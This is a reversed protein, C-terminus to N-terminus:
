QRLSLLKLKLKVIDFFKLINKKLYINHSTKFVVKLAHKQLKIIPKINSEFNNECIYIIYM